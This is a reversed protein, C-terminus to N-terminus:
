NVQNSGYKHEVHVVIATVIFDLRKNLIEETVQLKFFQAKETKGEKGMISQSTTPIM